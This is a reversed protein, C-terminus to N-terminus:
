LEWNGNLVVLAQTCLSVAIRKKLVVNPPMYRFISLESIAWNLREYEVSQNALRM